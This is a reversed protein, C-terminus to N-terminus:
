QKLVKLTEVKTELQLKLIYIGKSFPTTNVIVQNTNNFDQTHVLKGEINYLQVKFHNVEKKLNIHLQDSTPIPYIKLSAKSNITESSLVNANSFLRVHGANSGNDDNLYAGTAVIAGDASLSVSIGSRDESTEGDIDEDIQEWNDLNNKYIRTHGADIGFDSNYRAGVALISGSANLSVSIGFEDEIAEGDIDSGIQIWTNALNEFVRVHGIGNNDRAGVALINGQNNLSVAGGSKDNIGEGDIDQGIQVWNNTQYAYVRVQGSGAITNNNNPAGIAVISGDENLSV